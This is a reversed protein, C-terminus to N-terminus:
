NGFAKYVIRALETATRDLLEDRLGTAPAPTGGSPVSTSPPPAGPQSDTRTRVGAARAARRRAKKGGAAQAPRPRKRPSELIEPVSPERAM